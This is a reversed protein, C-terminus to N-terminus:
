SAWMKAGALVRSTARCKQAETEGDRYPFQGSMDDLYPNVSTRLGVHHFHRGSGELNDESGWTHDPACSSACMILSHLVLAISKGSVGPWNRAGVRRSAAM